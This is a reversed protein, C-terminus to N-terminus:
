LFLLPPSLLYKRKGDGTLPLNLNGRGGRRGTEREGGGM